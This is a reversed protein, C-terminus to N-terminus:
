KAQMIKEVEEYKGDLFTELHKEATAPDFDWKDIVQNKYGEGPENQGDPRVEIINVAEGMNIAPGWSEDAERFRIYLDSDGFGEERKSDWILYSEDPAIFPHATYGGSNVEEDMLVPEQREGDKLTSIRIVDNSKFDDFVYTGKSSATLRMIGWDKRDFWPGLSQRDSWGDGSRDKYGKAMHMRSGDPSFATEGRRRFETYKRWVNDEKRFGIITPRFPESKSTTFYFEEMEPHFVGEVKGRMIIVDDHQSLEIIQHKMESYGYEKQQNLYALLDAKTEITKHNPAM